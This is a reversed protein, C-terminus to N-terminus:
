YGTRWDRGIQWRSEWHRLYGTTVAENGWLVIVNESNSKAAAASYNFRGTQVTLQDSVLIKDHHAAFAAVTRVPIGANVLANLAARARSGGSDSTNQKYDCVVAVDVGRKKAAILASVVPASTLAYAMMRIQKKSTGIVKLVLKEAGADPSFAYEVTGASPASGTPTLASVVADAIQNGVNPFAHAGGWLLGAAAVLLPRFGKRLFM